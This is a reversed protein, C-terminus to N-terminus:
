ERVEVEQEIVKWYKEGVKWKGCYIKREMMFKKM